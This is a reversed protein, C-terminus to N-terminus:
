INEDVFPCSSGKHRAKRLAPVVDNIPCIRLIMTGAASARLPEDAADASFASKATRCHGESLRLEVIL